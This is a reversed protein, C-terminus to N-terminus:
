KVTAWFTLTATKSGTGSSYNSPITLGASVNKENGSNVTAKYMKWSQEDLKINESFLPDGSVTSEIQINRTGTNKVTLQKNESGGAKLKGFDISNPNVTFAITDTNGDVQGHEITVNLKVNGGSPTGVKLLISNSRVYGNKEAYIKYFGDQPLLQLTGSPSTIGESAGYYVKAGELPKWTGNDQSEVTVYVSSGTNIETDSITVRSNNWAFDGFYWVVFDDTKVLYDAAGVDPTTNNVRYLWGIVGAAEDNNLKKLYPGFSTEQVTYTYNCISKANKIVDLATIAEVKGECVTDNKGEIRFNVKQGLSASNNITQIPLTKGSLAILAYSTTIPTFTDETSYAQHKFYGNDTQNSELYDIPSKGNKIVSSPNVQSATFAWTAWATSSTDSSAGVEYGFGGDTNQASKLYSISKQIISDSLNSGTAILALKASSTMAVDSKTGTTTFSFGGDQLQKSIIFNRTNIIVPDNNSEGSAALALLGFYDDNLTTTDGIQGSTYFSKLKEVLNTSGFNRPNHGLATIALIPAEYEIANTGSVSKLYNANGGNNTAALAMTIWPNETKSKLYGIGNAQNYALANLPSTAVLLALFFSIIKTRM